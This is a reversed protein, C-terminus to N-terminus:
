KRGHCGGSFNVEDVISMIKQMTGKLFTKSVNKETRLSWDLVHELRNAAIEACHPCRFTGLLVADYTLLMWPGGYPAQIGEPARVLRLGPVPESAPITIRVGSSTALVIEIPQM